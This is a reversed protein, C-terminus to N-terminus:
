THCLPRCPRPPPPTPQPRDTGGSVVFLQLSFHRVRLVLCHNEYFPLSLSLQLNTIALIPRNALKPRECCNQCNRRNQCNRCDTSLSQLNGAQTPFYWHRQSHTAAILKRRLAAQPM